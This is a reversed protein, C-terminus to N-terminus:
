QKRQRRIGLVINTFGQSPDAGQSSNDAIGHRLEPEIISGRHRGVVTVIVTMSATVMRVRMGMCMVMAVMMVMIMTMTSVIMIMIMIMCVVVPVLFHKTHDMDNSGATRIQFIYALPSDIEKSFLIHVDHYLHLAVSISAAPATSAVSANSKPYDITANSM